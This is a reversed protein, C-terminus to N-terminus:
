VRGGYVQKRQLPGRLGGRSQRRGRPHCHSGTTASRPARNPKETIRAATSSTVKFEGGLSRNGQTPSWSITIGHWYHLASCFHRNKHFLPSYQPIVQHLYTALFITTSGSIPSVRHFSPLSCHSWCATGTPGKPPGKVHMNGKLPVWLLCQILPRKPQSRRSSSSSPSKTYM